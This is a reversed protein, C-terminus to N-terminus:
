DADDDIILPDFMVEFERFRGDDGQAGTAV